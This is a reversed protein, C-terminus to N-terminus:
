VNDMGREVIEAYKESHKEIQYLKGIKESIDAKAVDYDKRIQIMIIQDCYMPLTKCINKIHESDTDSFPADMVLPYCEDDEDDKEYERLATSNKIANLLGAVFAFNKVTDTGTSNDLVSDGVKTIINFNDDIYIQREGHYMTSFINNVEKELKERTEVQITKIKKDTANYIANAYDICLKTLENDKTEEVCDDLESQKQEIKKNISPLEERIYDIQGDLYNIQDNLKNVDIQYEGVDFRGAIRNNLEKINEKTDEIDRIDELFDKIKESIDEITASSSGVNINESGIFDSLYKSFDHPEMHMKAEILHKYAENENKIEAGCLCYGREILQDIAEESIHSMSKEKGFSSLESLNGVNNKRFCCSFLSKLFANNKGNFLDIIREFSSDIEKQREIIKRNLRKLEDQDDKVDKNADIIAQKEDRQETLNKIQNKNEEIQALKEEREATLEKLQVRIPELDLASGKYDNNLVAIVGTSSKPNFYSSLNELRRIGMMQSVADNLSARRSMSEIKNNEGDYFFYDKLERKLIKNIEIDIMSSPLPNTDKLVKTSAKSSVIVHDNYKKYKEETTIRYDIGAHVLDIVVWVSEENLVDMETAVDENLLIPNKFLNNSRYLCWIFARVLTTKGYGNEGLIVTLNRDRDTSFELNVNKYQRFNHMKIRKILM